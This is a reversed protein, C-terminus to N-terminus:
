QELFHKEHLQLEFGLIAKAADPLTKSNEDITHTLRILEALSLGMYVGNLPMIELSLSIFGRRACSCLTHVGNIRGELAKVGVATFQILAKLFRGPHTHHGSAHWADEWAEHAEWYYGHNFLDIGFLYHQNQNWSDPSLAAAPEPEHGYSHGQPSRTPHPLKGPIFAYAPFPIEPALRPITNM